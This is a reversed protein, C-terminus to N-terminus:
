AKKNWCSPKKMELLFLCIIGEALLSYNNM